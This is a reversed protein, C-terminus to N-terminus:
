TMFLKNCTISYSVVYVVYMYAYRHRISKNKQKQKLHTIQTGYKVRRIWGGEEGGGGGGGSGGKGRGRNLVVTDLVTAAVRRFSVCFVDFKVTRYM